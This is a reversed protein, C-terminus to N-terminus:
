DFYRFWTELDPIKEGTQINCMHTPIMRESSRKPEWFESKYILHLLLDKHYTELAHDLSKFSTYIVQKSTMAVINSIFKPFLFTKLENDEYKWNM